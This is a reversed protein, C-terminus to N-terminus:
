LDGQSALIAAEKNKEVVQQYLDGRQVQARFVGTLPDWRFSATVDKEGWMRTPLPNGKNGELVSVHAPEGWSGELASLVTQADGVSVQATIGIGFFIGHEQFYAIIVPVGALTGACNWRVSPEPNEKCDALPATSLEQVGYPLGRFDDHLKSALAVTTLIAWM